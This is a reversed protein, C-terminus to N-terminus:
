FDTTQYNFFSVVLLIICMGWKNLGINVLYKSIKKFVRNIFVYIGKSLINQPIQIQFIQELDM